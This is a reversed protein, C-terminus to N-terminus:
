KVLFIHIPLLPYTITPITCPCIVRSLPASFVCGAGDLWVQMAGQQQSLAALAGEMHSNRQLVASLMHQFAAFGDTMSHMSRQMESVQVTLTANSSRLHSVEARPEQVCDHLLRNLDVCTFSFPQYGMHFICTCGRSQVAM